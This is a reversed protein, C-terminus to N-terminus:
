QIDGYNKSLQYQKEVVDFFQEHTLECSALKGVAEPIVRDDDIILLFAKAVKDQIDSPLKILGQIIKQIDEAQPENNITM